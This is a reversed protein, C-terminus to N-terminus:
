SGRPSRLLMGAQHLPSLVVPCHVPSREEMVRGAPTTAPIFPWPFAAVKPSVDPLSSDPGTFETVCAPTCSKRASAPRRDFDMSQTNTVSVRARMAGTATHPSRNERGGAKAEFSPWRSATFERCHIWCV